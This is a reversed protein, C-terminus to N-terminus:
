VENTSNSSKYNGDTDYFIGTVGYPVNTGFNATCTTAEGPQGTLHITCPNSPGQFFVTGQAGAPLGTEGLVATTGNKTKTLVETVQFSTPAVTVKITGGVYTFTYDPDIAGQCTSPYSGPSSHATATTACIPAIAPATDGNVLGSYIPHLAPIAGYPVTLSPATITLPAPSITLVGAVNTVTYNGDTDSCNIPYHGVASNAPVSTCTTLGKEKSITDGNVLGNFSASFSPYTGGYTMSANNATVTLPAKNITLTGAVPTVTYNGDTDTCNIPYAGVTSNAPVSTCNTLGSEKIATDGNVLGSYAAGLTPYTGGYTMSANKGTVTLAAKNVTLTGAVYSVPAYLGDNTYLCNIPYTGVASSATATSTCVTHANQNTQTDSGALGTFTAGLTPYTGGYTMSANNATVTLPNTIVVSNSSKAYASPGGNNIAAALCTV